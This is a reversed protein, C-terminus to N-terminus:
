MFNVVVPIANPIVPAAGSDYFSAMFGFSPRDTGVSTFAGREASLATESIKYQVIRSTSTYSATYGSGAALSTAAATLRGNCIVIVDAHTTIGGAAACYHNDSSVTDDFQATQDLTDAGSIEYAIAGCTIAANPTITITTDGAAADEVYFIAGDAGGDQARIAEVWTNSKDDSCTFTRIATSHCQVVVALLSHATVGPLVITIPTGSNLTFDSEQVVAVVSEEEAGGLPEFYRESFYDSVFYTSPFM